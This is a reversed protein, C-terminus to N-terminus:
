ILSNVSFHDSLRDMQLIETPRLDSYVVKTRLTLKTWGIFEKTIHWYIHDTTHGLTCYFINELSLFFTKTTM